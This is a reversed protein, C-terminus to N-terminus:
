TSTGNASSICYQLPYSLVFVVMGLLAHVGLMHLIYITGIIAVIVGGIIMPGMTAFEYVRQGDNSFLNILQVDIMWKM